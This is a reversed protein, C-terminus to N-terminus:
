KWWFSVSFSTSLSRVYHWMKPPIYLMSGQSLICEQYPTTPFLPYLHDDPAEVDVRSTNSLLGEHPYVNAKWQDDYLRIYKSGVVQSLFNHDPDNHLPSVTGKPGFWANIQVEDSEGLYCYDPTRIDNKLRPVQEFLQYQALYGTSKQKVIYNDIFDNVTSMSQSWSDDTYKSGIEVPVLRYGSVRRLYDISWRSDSMAPWCQMAGTIVAPKKNMIETLFTEISPEDYVLIERSQCIAVTSITESIPNLVRPKKIEDLKTLVENLCDAIHNLLGNLIPAGMILGLDCTKISELCRIRTEVDQKLQLYAKILSCYSYLYRWSIDVDDWKGTHLREWSYNLLSDIAALLGDSSGKEVVLGSM